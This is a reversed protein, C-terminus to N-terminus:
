IRHIFAQVNGFPAAELLHGDGEISFENNIIFARANFLIKVTNKIATATHLKRCFLIVVKTGQSCCRFYRFYLGQRSFQMIELIM